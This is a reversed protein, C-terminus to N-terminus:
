WPWKRSSAQRSPTSTRGALALHLAALPGLWIALWVALTSLVAERETKDM